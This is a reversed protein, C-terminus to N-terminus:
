KSDAPKYKLQQHTCDDLEMDKRPGRYVPQYLSGEPYAYLYEVEVIEGPTPIGFNPPITVNGVSVLQAFTADTPEEKLLGVRVSRKDRNIEMVACSATETFKFKRWDGGSNPRGPTVPADIRKFVIGEGNAEKTQLWLRNKDERSVAATLAHIHCCSALEIQALRMRQLWPLEHLPKGRHIHMDFVFLSEGIIEGDMRITDDGAIAVLEDALGQPLPVILGKRNIGIANGNEAHVARREGDMKQQAAWDHNAILHMAAEESLPNLLQPVFDTKIGAQETGQYANGSEAPTYGKATKSKVLQDYIKKAQAFDVPVATKTGAKLTSGRRGYRFNVVNGTDNAVIEAHYEKDSNGETYYLRISQITQM